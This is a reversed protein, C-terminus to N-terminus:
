QSNQQTKVGFLNYNKARVQSSMRNQTMQLALDSEQNKDRMFKKQKTGAKQLRGIKRKLEVNMKKTEENDKKLKKNEKKLLAKELNSKKREEKLKIVEEKLNLNEATTQETRLTANKYADFNRKLESLQKNFKSTIDELRTDFQEM